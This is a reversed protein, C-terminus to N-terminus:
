VTNSNVLKVLLETAASGLAGEDSIGFGSM